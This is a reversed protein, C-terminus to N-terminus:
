VALSASNFLIPYPRVDGAFLCVIWFEGQNSGVIIFTHTFVPLLRYVPLISLRPKM